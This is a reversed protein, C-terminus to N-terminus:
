SEDGARMRILKAPTGGYIGFKSLRSRVVSHAAVACGTEIHAGDLLVCNAGIWVNDEIVIGGRSPMVGQERITQELDSIEHNTAAFSCNAAVLVDNGITIGHGSYLVCGSNIYSNCGIRVDGAGGAPKIKVFSDIMSNAGVIVRTGRTSQEIDALASIRASPDIDPM